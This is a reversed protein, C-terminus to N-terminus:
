GRSKGLGGKGLMFVSTTDTGGPQGIVLAPTWGQRRNNRSLLNTESLRPAQVNEGHTPSRCTTCSPSHRANTRATGSQPPTIHHASTPTPPHLVVNAPLLHFNLPSCLKGCESVKRQSPLFEFFFFEFFFGRYKLLALTPLWM